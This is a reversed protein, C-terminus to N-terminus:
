SVEITLPEPSEYFVEGQTVVDVLGLTYGTAFGTGTVTYVGNPDPTVFTVAVVAGETDKVIVDAAVFTNASTGSCAVNATFKIETASASVQELNVDLIGELDSLDSDTKLVSYIESSFKVTINTFPIDGAVRSNRIGVNFSSLKRGKVTGDDQIDCTIEGENTLQFIRTYGANEYSKLAEQTCVATDIRYIEGPVAATLEYSGQYLTDKVTAETNSLQVDGVLPFPAIEKAAIATLSNAKLKADAVTAFSFNEKTLFFTKLLGEFCQLKGGINKVKTNTGGCAENIIM